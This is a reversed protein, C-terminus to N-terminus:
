ARKPAAAWAIGFAPRGRFATLWREVCPFGNASLGCLTGYNVASAVAVDVLSFADGLMYARQALHSDLIGLYRSVAERASAALASNHQEKPFRESTTRSYCQIEAGYSVYAWACWSLATLRQPDKLAPWLGREVGHRDGLYTLIALTEFMPQGDVVLTPVKGNPNLALLEPSKQENRSFDLMRLDCSLALEEIAHLVPIASSFPAAYLVLSM